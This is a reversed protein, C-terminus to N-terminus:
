FDLRSMEERADKYLSRDIQLILGKNHPVKKLYGKTKECILEVVEIVLHDQMNLQKAIKDIM